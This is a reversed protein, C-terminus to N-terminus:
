GLNNDEEGCLILERAYPLETIFKVFEGWDERLRHGKRQRYITALQEYNTTVHMFLEFGMPTNSIVRMFNEYSKDENYTMLLRKLQEKTSQTVYKNCNTAVDMRAISHMKSSSSIVEIFHYRQLELAFYQPYIIDFSVLIGKRFNSHGSGGGKKSLVKARSLANRFVCYASFTSIDKELDTYGLRFPNQCSIVSEELNYVKVNKISVM